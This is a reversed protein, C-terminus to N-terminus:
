LVLLKRKLLKPIRMLMGFFLRAHMWSILCNDKFLRFHSVGHAPYIVRTPIQALPQGSWHWRVIFEGDYEMHNGMKKHSILQHSQEVPYIRFGCMSDKITMSLTNIWVWIHSAYRGYYRLKPISEDFQPYGAILAEPQRSMAEIFRPVDNLDHQGDANLGSTPGLTSDSAPSGADGLAAATGVLAITAAPSFGFSLALPVYITAIIPITSFSSGIGMTILLGVILMALAAIGQHGSMSTQLFVVLTEVGGTAKMVSAFGNASIMIFGIMAMM